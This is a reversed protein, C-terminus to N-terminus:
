RLALVTFFDPPSILSEGSLSLSLSLPPSFASKFGWSLRATHSGSGHTSCGGGTARVTHGCTRARLARRKRSGHACSIM